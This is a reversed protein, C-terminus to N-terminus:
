KAKQINERLAYNIFVQKARAKSELDLLKPNAKTLVLKEKEWKYFISNKIEALGNKNIAWRSSSIAINSLPSKELLNEGINLCSAYPLSISLLTPLIDIHSGFLKPKRNMKKRLNPPLYLYFPVQHKWKFNSQNFDFLAQTNHDGTIAIILNKGYETKEINELFKGLADNVYQFAILARKALKEDVILKKKEQPSLDIPYAKYNKPVRYPPHHTTTLAVIFNPKKAEILVEELYSFLYSDFIGWENGDVNSFREKLKAQGTMEEFGQYPLFLDRWSLKGSYIFHTKYGAKLFPRTIASRFPRKRYQSQSLPYDTNGILLAELSGITGDHSSFFNPFNIMKPLQKELSALLNIKKNNLSFYYSSWSEMILLLVHYPKELPPLIPKVKKYLYKTYPLSVKDLDYLNKLASEVSPYKYAKLTPKMNKDFYFKKYDKLADTLGFVGNYSLFNIFFNASFSKDDRSLPFLSLSGRAFFGLLIFIVLPFSIKFFLSEFRLHFNEIKKELYILFKWIGISCFVGIFFAWVVPYEYWFTKILTYTDDDFFNFIYVNIHSQFYTYYYQDISLVIFFIISILFLFYFTTKDIITKLYSIKFISLFFTFTQLLFLLMIPISIIKADFRFGLTFARLLDWPYHSLSPIDGFRVLFFVRYFQFFICASIFYFTLFVLYRYYHKYQEKWM